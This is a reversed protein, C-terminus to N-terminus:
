PDNGYSTPHNKEIWTPTGDEVNYLTEAPHGVSAAMECALGSRVGAACIFLLKKGQPLEDVRGLLDDIPIHIAGAAHGSVWEDDRRVDVIVTQDKESELMSAAEDSDVRYYPEGPDQRPM